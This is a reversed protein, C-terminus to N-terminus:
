PRAIETKVEGITLHGGTILAQFDYISTNVPKMLKTDIIDFEHCITM